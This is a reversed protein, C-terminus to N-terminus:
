LKAAVAGLNLLIATLNKASIDAMYVDTTDNADYARM